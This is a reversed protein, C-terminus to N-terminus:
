VGFFTAILLVFLVGKSVEIWGSTRLRVKYITAAFVLNDFLPVLAILPLALLHYVALALAVYAVMLLRYTSRRTLQVKVKFVGATFFVAVAVYLRVDFSRSAALEALPAAFALLFFGAIETLIFHEGKLRFFLIYAAPIGLFPLLTSLNHWAVGLLLPVAILIQLVFVSLSRRSDRGKGRFWQTLAQKSNICLAAAVLVAISGSGFRGAVSLGALYSLLTVGWSGYERLIYKKISM